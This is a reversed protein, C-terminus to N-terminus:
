TRHADLSMGMNCAACAVIPPVTVTSGVGPTLTPEDALAVAAGVLEVDGDGVDATCSPSEVPALAPM